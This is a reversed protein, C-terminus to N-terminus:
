KAGDREESSEPSGSVGAPQNRSWRSFITREYECVEEGLLIFTGDQAALSGNDCGGEFWCDETTAVCGKGGGPQGISIFCGWGWADGDGFTLEECFEDCFMTGAQSSSSQAEVVLPTCAAAVIVCIVLARRM